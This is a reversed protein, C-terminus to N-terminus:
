INEFKDLKDMVEDISDLNGEEIQEEAYEGLKPTVREMIHRQASESDIIEFTTNNLESSYRYSVYLIVVLVWFEGQEYFSYWRVDGSTMAQVFFGSAVAVVINGAVALTTALAPSNLVQSLFKEKLWM